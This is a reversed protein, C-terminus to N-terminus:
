TITITIEDGDTVIDVNTYNFYTDPNVYSTSAGDISLSSLTYTTLGRYKPDSFIITSQLEIYNVDQAIRLSNLMNIVDKAILTATSSPGSGGAFYSLTNITIVVPPAIPVCEKWYTTQIISLPNPYNYSKNLGNGETVSTIGIETTHVGPTKREYIIGGIISDDINTNQNKRILIYIDNKLIDTSDKAVLTDGTDNNYIRVDTLGVVNLLASIIGEQVTNSKMSLSSERRSRLQADTERPLGPIAASGMTVTAGMVELTTYIWGVEATIYGFENCTALVTAEGNLDAIFPDCTWLTGNKDVLVLENGTLFEANADLGTITVYVTSKTASKRIVNTLACLSDLYVGSATNVDLNAYMLQVAQLINNIILCLNEVYIGDASNTSLDIDSGYALKFQAVVIAKIEQYTAIRVGNNDFTILGLYNTAAM